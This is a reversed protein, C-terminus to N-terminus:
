GTSIQHATEPAEEDHVRGHYSDVLERDDGGMRKEQNREGVLLALKLEEKFVNLVAM